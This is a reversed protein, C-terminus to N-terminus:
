GVPAEMQQVQVGLLLERWGIELARTARRLMWSLSVAYALLSACAAGMLGLLPLMVALGTVTAGLAVFEAIGADLPRGSAKLVTSLVRSVSLAVGAVLLVRAVNTVPAYSEGFLLVTLPRCLLLMPVTILLSSVISARVFWCAIVRRESLTELASIAPMAVLSISYGVLGTLTTLTVAIVYLGLQVPALFVSILLQDLRQNFTSALSDTHSRIGYAFLLRVVRASFGLKGNVYRAVLIAGTAACIGYAILYAEIAGSLGLHGTLATVALTVATVFPVFSRFGQFVSLRQWGQLLAAEYGTALQTPVALVYLLSARVTAAGYHGLAFPTVVSAIGMLIASQVVWITGLSGVLTPPPVLRAAHYTAADSIGLNGFATVLSPWLVAAALEGRGHAGLMRALLIGTFVNIGQIAGAYAFSEIVRLASKRRSPRRRPTLM